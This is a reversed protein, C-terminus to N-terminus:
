TERRRCLGGLRGVRVVEGGGCDVPCEWGCAALVVFCEVAVTAAEAAQPLFYHWSETALIMTYAEEIVLFFALFAIGAAYPAIM